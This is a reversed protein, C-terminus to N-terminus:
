GGNAFQLPRRAMVSFRGAVSVTLMFCPLQVSIELHIRVRRQDVGDIGLSCGASRHILSVGERAVLCLRSQVDVQPSACSVARLNGEPNASLDRIPAPTASMMVNGMRAARGSAHSTRCFERSCSAYLPSGEAPPRRRGRRPRLPWM